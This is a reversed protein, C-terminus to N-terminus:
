ARERTELSRRFPELDIEHKPQERVAVLSRSAFEPAEDDTPGRRLIRPGIRSVCDKPVGRERGLCSLPSRHDAETRVSSVHGEHMVRELVDEEGACEDQAGVGFSKALRRREPWKKCDHCGTCPM